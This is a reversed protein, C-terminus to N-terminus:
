LYDFLLQFDRMRSVINLRFHEEEFAAIGVISHCQFNKLFPRKFPQLDAIKAM